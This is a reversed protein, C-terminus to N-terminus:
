VVAPMSAGDVNVISGSVYSARDSSLFVVVSAVEQPDAFRGFPMRAAAHRMAEEVSIGDQRAQAALGENMRETATLTPNVANVRVGHPAYASALGATALMLAANASGGPLHITSPFKGGMGIVNVIAGRRREAMRRIVVDIVNVYTHFKAKMAAHWAVSDLEAFPTRAAAGASNVLVDIPGLRAEAKDVLDRVAEPESVDAVHADLRDGAALERVAAECSAPSRGCITVRAGEKLYLRACALGIGRTGGTILVHKDALGLDM